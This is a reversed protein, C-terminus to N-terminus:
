VPQVASIALNSWGLTLSFQSSIPKQLKEQLSNRIDLHNPHLQRASRWFTLTKPHKDLESMIATSQPIIMLSAGLASEMISRDVYHKKISVKSKTHLRRHDIGLGTPNGLEM